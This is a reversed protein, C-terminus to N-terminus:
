EQDRDAREIVAQSDLEHLGDNDNPLGVSAMTADIDEVDEPTSGLVSTEDGLQEDSNKVLDDDSHM